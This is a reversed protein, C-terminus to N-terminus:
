YSRVGKGDCMPCIRGYEDSLSSRNKEIGTGNCLGCKNNEYIKGDSGENYEGYHQIPADQMSSNKSNNYYNDVSNMLNQTAQKACSVSCLTGQGEDLIEYQGESVEQYGRHNFTKGCISCVEEPTSSAVSTTDVFTDENVTNEINNNHNFINYMLVFFVIFYLLYSGIKKFGYNSEITNNNSNNIENFVNRESKVNYPKNPTKFKNLLSDDNNGFLIEDKLSKYESESISKSDYLKKIEELQFKINNEM